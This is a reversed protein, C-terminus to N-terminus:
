PKVASHICVSGAGLFKESVSAFNKEKLMASFGSPRVFTRVSEALYSYSRSGTLINGVHPMLHYFYISFPLHFWNNPDFIDMNLFTGGHKLVHFSNSLYRDLSSLNRTLFASVVCDFSEAEFNMNEASGIIYNVRSPDPNRAMKETIDLATVKRGPVRLILETLKGTGAGCELIEMSREPIMGALIRRWRQDMGFSIMSDLLDYKGSIDTFISRVAAHKDGELEAWRWLPLSHM